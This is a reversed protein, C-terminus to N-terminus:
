PLGRQGVPPLSPGELPEITGLQGSFTRLLSCIRPNHEADHVIAERHLRRREADVLALSPSHPLSPVADILELHMVEGFYEASFREFAVKHEPNERLQNQAFGTAPSALEVVGERLSVL